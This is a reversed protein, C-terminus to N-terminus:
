SQEPTILRMESTSALDYYLYPWGNDLAHDCCFGNRRLLTSLNSEDMYTSLRGEHASFNCHLKRLLLGVIFGSGGEGLRM